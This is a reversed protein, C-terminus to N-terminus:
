SIKVHCIDRKVSNQSFLIRVFFELNITSTHEMVEFILFAM